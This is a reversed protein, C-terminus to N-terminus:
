EVESLDGLPITTTMWIYADCKEWEFIEDEMAHGM